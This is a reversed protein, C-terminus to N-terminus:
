YLSTLYNDIHFNDLKQIQTNSLVLIIIDDGYFETLRYSDITQLYPTFTEYQERNILLKLFAVYAYKLFHSNSVYKHENSVLSQIPFMWGVRENIDKEYAQFINNESNLIWSKFIFLSYDEPKYDNYATLVYDIYVKTGSSDSLEFHYEDDNFTSTVETLLYTTNSVEDIIKLSM